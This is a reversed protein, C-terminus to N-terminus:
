NLNNFFDHVKAKVSYYYTFRVQIKNEPDASDNPEIQPAHVTVVTSENATPAAADQSTEQSTYLTYTFQLKIFICQFSIALTQFLQLLIKRPMVLLISTKRKIAVTFHGMNKKHSFAFLTKAVLHLISLKSMFFIFKVNLSLIRM